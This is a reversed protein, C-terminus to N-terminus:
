IFYYAANKNSILLACKNKIKLEVEHGVCVKTQINGLYAKANCHYLQTASVSFKDPDEQFHKDFSEKKLIFFKM